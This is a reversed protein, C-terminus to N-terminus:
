DMNDFLINKVYLRISSAIDGKYKGVIKISSTGSVTVSYANNFLQTLGIVNDKSPAYVDLNNYEEKKTIGNTQRRYIQSQIDVDASDFINHLISGDSLSLNWANKYEDIEANTTKEIDTYLQRNGHVLYVNKDSVVLDDVRFAM